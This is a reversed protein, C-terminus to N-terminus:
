EAVEISAIGASVALLRVLTARDLVMVHTDGALTAHSLIVSGNDQAQAELAPSDDAHRAVVVATHRPM